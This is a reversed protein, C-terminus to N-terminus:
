VVLKELLKDFQKERSYEVIRDIRGQYVVTQTDCWEKYWKMILGYAEEATQPAKGAQTYELLAEVADRDGPIQLIIRRLGLYEFVKTACVGRMEDFGDVMLIHSASSIRLAEEQPLRHTLVLKNAPIIAKFLDAVNPSALLGIFQFKIQADPHRAVVLGLADLMVSLNAMEYLSGTVTIVFHQRAQPENVQLLAEDFGNSLTFVHQATKEQIYDTLFKNVTFVAFAQKMWEKFHLMLLKHQQLRFWTPRKKRYLLLDNEFDRVDVLMPISFKKALAAGTKLVTHPPTSVVIYDFTKQSLLKELYPAFSGYQLEYNFNGRLNQYATFLSSFPKPPYRFTKIPLSHIEINSENRIEVPREDGQLYDTWVKEKGTWHRTIVTVEYGHKAFNQALSAPRNSAVYNCPFYYYALLIIKPM